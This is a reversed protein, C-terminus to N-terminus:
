RFLTLTEIQMSRSRKLEEVLVSEDVITWLAYETQQAPHMAHLRWLLYALVAYSMLTIVFPFSPVAFSAFPLRAFTEAIFLIYTLSWTACLGAVFALPMSVFAIMGTIFTLFMAVPVMPLVLVNVVVAVISLEGIQYLLIPAVFIQTAITAVLFERLKLTKPMFQAYHEIRPSLLILGLTAIFSLQFGVDYVLLYPNILLMILATIVLARVVTYTRGTAQAVLLLAAMMSARVVTASLGVLLAFAGIAALGFVLRFRFPLIFSLVYTVFAVVLMVNYGSLVVIHTIGTKRFTEERMEGLAQKVGLLLGEGLGVEPQGIVSEVKGMFAHKFSLLSALLPNGKDTELTEVEAFTIIYNVGRARLYNQYDFVRGLDTEFPEPEKLTGTVAIADGYTVTSYPSAFALLLEDDVQVYIHSSHERREVERVIVGEVTITTDLEAEYVPNIDNWSAYEFRFAGLSFLLLFVSTYVLVLATSDFSGRRGILLLAFAVIGISALAYADVKFLSRAFIGCVFGIAGAYFLFSSM